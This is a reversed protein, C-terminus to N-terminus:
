GGAADSIAAAVDEPTASGAFLGQVEDNIVGGLEPTFYQDLYLQIETTEGMGALVLQQSPDAVSDEAGATVPLGQGTEGFRRANDVSTIYELFAVAEPEADRGVAFGDGGGLGVTAAGAGGEVAPFPFWGLDAGIGDGSASDTAFASPAWQGMLDMAAMANGMTGSEGDPGPWPAALFGDQFPDLDILRQLEVGANVFADGTFDDTDAAAAVAETGGLRLALYTWYFHAPWKDGAGLAIPTIGAEQLAEVAALFEDWTTPPAEVGAEAFLAKNYWFGVMGLNFPIGYQVDDIQYLEVASPNLDDVFGSSAETIDQVLSADVQEGLGGGGWSQFLDPVDGSQLAIQLADKFAENEQVTIEITVHPNAEMFEDAMAQWVSLMPENNQIHWWTITVEEAGSAQALTGGGAAAIGVAAAALAALTTAPRRRRSNSLM